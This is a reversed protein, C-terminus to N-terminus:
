KGKREKAQKKNKGREKFRTIKRDAKSEYNFQRKKSKSKSKSNSSRPREKTWIRKGNADRRPVQGELADQAPKEGLEGKRVERDEEVDDIVRKLGDRSVDVAEVTVTTFKDDDVYEELDVVEREEETGDWKEEGEVESADPEAGENKRLMANVAEM